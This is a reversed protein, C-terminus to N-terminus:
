LTAERRKQILKALMFCALAWAAGLSWGGIVDTPYHVGLYVRTAGVLLTLSIALGVYFLRLSSREASAALVAGITLFTVASVLAHGSPFSYTFIKVVGTLEPRPRAFTTKLVTSLLTGTVVAGGLLFATSRKRVLILYGFLATVLITLVAFSGLATLDRAAEVMWDPGIPTEPHGPVRLALLIAEDFARTEGEMVDEALLGFAGLLAAVIGLAWYQLRTM